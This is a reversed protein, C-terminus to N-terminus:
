HCNEALVQRKGSPKILNSQLQVLPWVDAECNKIFIIELLIM